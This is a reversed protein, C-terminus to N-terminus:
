TWIWLTWWKKLTEKVQPMTGTFSGSADQVIVVDFYQKIIPWYIETSGELERVCNEFDELAVAVNSVIGDSSQGAVIMIPNLIFLIIIVIYLLKSFNRM